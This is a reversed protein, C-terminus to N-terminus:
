ELMDEKIVSNSIKDYMPLDTLDPRYDLNWLACSINWLCARLHPEDRWGCIHKLLHRIASDIFSHLPIGKEWNREGYKVAGDEFQKSVEILANALLVLPEDSDKVRDCSPYDVAILKSVHLFASYLYHTSLTSVFLLLDRLASNSVSPPASNELLQLVPYPPILDCRGKGAAMDRVAGTGFERREGSDKVTGVQEIEPNSM